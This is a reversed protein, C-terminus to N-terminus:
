RLSGPKTYQVCLENGYTLADIVSVNTAADPGANTLTLTFTVNDGVNPSPNDVTQTLSLDAVTAREIAGMDIRGAAIRKFPTGRQDFEPVGNQGAILNPDGVDIAPSGPLLTHTPTSGGHNGLPGLLPDILGITSPDGVINNGSMADPFASATLGTDTNDGILSYTIDIVGNPQSFEAARDSLSNNGAIISNTIHLSAQPTAPDVYFYIGAGGEEPVPLAVEATNGFITSSSIAVSSGDSYIGGGLFQASNNSLTSNDVIVLGGLAFIAGGNEASNGLLTSNSVTVNGTFAAIGGGDADAGNSATNGSITSSEVMVSGTDSYIGGGFVFDGRVHNDSIVSNVVNM